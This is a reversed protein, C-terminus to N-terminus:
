IVDIDSHVYKRPNQPDDAGEWGVLIDGEEDGDGAEGHVSAREEERRQKESMSRAETSTEGILPRVGCRCQM